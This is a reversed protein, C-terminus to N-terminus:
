AITTRQTTLTYKAKNVPAFIVAENDGQLGPSSNSYIGIEEACSFWAPKEMGLRPEKFKSREYGM